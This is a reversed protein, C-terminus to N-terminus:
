QSLYYTKLSLDLVGEEANFAFNEIDLLRLNTEVLNLLNKLKTYSVGGLGLKIDVLGLQSDIATQAQADAGEQLPDKKPTTSKVSQISIETLVLEAKQILSELSVYLNAEDLNDPLVQNIKTEELSDLSQYVSVRKKYDKLQKIKIDRQQQYQKVQEKNKQYLSYQPKLALFYGPLLIALILLIILIKFRKLYFPKQKQSTTPHPM